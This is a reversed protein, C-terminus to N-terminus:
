VYLELITEGQNMSYRRRKIRRSRLKHHNSVMNKLVNGSRYGHIVVIESCNKPANAIFKELTKIAEFETLDHIDIELKM